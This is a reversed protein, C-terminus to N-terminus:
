LLAVQLRRTGGHIVPNPTGNSHELKLNLIQRDRPAARRSEIDQVYRLADYSDLDFVPSIEFLAKRLREAVARKSDGNALAIWCDMVLESLKQHDRAGETVANNQIAEDIVLARHLVLMRSMERLDNIRNRLNRVLRTVFTSIRQQSEDPLGTASAEFLPRIPDGTAGIASFDIMLPLGNAVLPNVKQRISAEESMTVWSSAIGARDWMSRFFGASLDVEVTTNSYLVQATSGATSWLHEVVPMYSIGDSSALQLRLTVRETAAARNNPNHAGFVSDGAKEDVARMFLAAGGRLLEAQFGELLALEGSPDAPIRITM